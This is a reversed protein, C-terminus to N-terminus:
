ENSSDSSVKTKQFDSDSLNQSNKEVRDRQQQKRKLLNQRLALALNKHRKSFTKNTKDNMNTKRKICILFWFAPITTLSTIFFLWSWGCLDALFGALLSAINRSLSGIAYLFTFHGASFPSSSYLTIMAIFATSAMGSAFSEVGITIILISLDHGVWSQIVFLLCSVMQLFLSAGLVFFSDMQNILFGAFLAGTVMLMIGFSKTINAFEVKNFSLDYLFPASMANLVTCAIKFFLIFLIIHLLPTNEYLNFFSKKITKVLNKEFINQSNKKISQTPIYYLAPIGILQILGIIWYAWSWNYLYALYLGGAGGILMGLHFGITEIAAGAGIQKSVFVEIRLADIIIDQTAAFFCVFFAAVAVLALSEVPDFGGLMGISLVLGIQAVLGCIKFGRYRNEFYYSSIRDIYPAWLFKLSYPLTVLTFLGILSPSVNCETLRFSLTSLALLFPIGSSIGLLLFHFISRKLYLNLM